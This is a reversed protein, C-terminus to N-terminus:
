TYSVSGTKRERTPNTQLTAAAPKVGRVATESRGVKRGIKRNSLEDNFYAVVIGKKTMDRKTPGM